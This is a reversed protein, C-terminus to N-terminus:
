GRPRFAGMHQPFLVEAPHLLGRDEHIDAAARRHVLFRQDLRQLFAPDGMGRQIHQLGLRGGVVVRQQPHLVHGERGMDGAGAGPEVLRPLAPDPLFQRQDEGALPRHTADIRCHQLIGLQLAPLGDAHTASRIGSSVWWILLYATTVPAPDPTPRAAARAKSPSPQVTARAPRRGSASASVAPIAPLAVGRAMATGVSTPSGAETLASNPLSFCSQPLSSKRNLLAPPLTGAPGISSRFYSSQARTTCTLRVPLKRQAWAANRMMFSCSGRPPRMTLLPLM